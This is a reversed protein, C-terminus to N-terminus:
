QTGPMTRPAPDKPSCFRCLGRGKSCSSFSVFALCSLDCSLWDPGEKSGVVQLDTRVLKVGQHRLDSCSFLFSRNFYSALEQLLHLSLVWIRLWHGGPRPLFLFLLLLVLPQSSGLSKPSNLAPVFPGLLRLSRPLRIYVSTEPSSRSNDLPLSLVDLLM